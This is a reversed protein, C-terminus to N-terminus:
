GSDCLLAKSSLAACKRPLISSDLWGDGEKMHRMGMNAAVVPFRYGGKELASAVVVRLDGRLDALRGRGDAALHTCPRIGVAHVAGARRVPGGPPDARRRVAEVPLQDRPALREPRDDPPM